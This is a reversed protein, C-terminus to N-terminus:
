VFSIFSRNSSTLSNDVFPHVFFKIAKNQIHYKMQHVPFNKENGFPSVPSFTTINM